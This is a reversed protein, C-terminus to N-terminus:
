NILEDITTKVKNIDNEDTVIIKKLGILKDHNVCASTCGCIIIVLNYYENDRATEFLISKYEDILKKVFNIRDYKPNCGGCYKIGIRM